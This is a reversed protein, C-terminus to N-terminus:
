IINYLTMFDDLNPVQEEVKEQAKVKETATATEVTPVIEPNDDKNVTSKAM